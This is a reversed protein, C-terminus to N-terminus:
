NADIIDSGRETLYREIREISQETSAKDAELQAIERRKVSIAYEIGNLKDRHYRLIRRMLRDFDDDNAV